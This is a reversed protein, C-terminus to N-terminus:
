GHPITKTKARHRHSAERKCDLCTNAWVSRRGPHGNPCPKGSDYTTLGQTMAVMRAISSPDDKPM